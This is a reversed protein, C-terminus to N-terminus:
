YAKYIYYADTLSVITVFSYYLKVLLCQVITTLLANPRHSLLLLFFTSKGSKTEINDWVFVQVQINCSNVLYSRALKCVSVRLINYWECTFLILSSPIYIIWWWM